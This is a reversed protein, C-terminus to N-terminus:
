LYASGSRDRGAKLAAAVGLLMDVSLPLLGVPDIMLGLAKITEIRANRSQLASKSYIDDHLEQRAVRLAEGSSFALRAM